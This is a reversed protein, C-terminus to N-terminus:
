RYYGYIRESLWDEWSKGDIVDSKATMDKRPKEQKWDAITEEWWANWELREDGTSRCTIADLENALYLTWDEGGKVHKYESLTFEKQDTIGDKFIATGGFDNGSEEYELDIEVAYFKSLRNFFHVPPGWASFFYIIIEKDHIEEIADGLEIWKSGYAGGLLDPDQESTGGFFRDCFEVFNCKPSWHKDFMDKIKLADEGRIICYNICYNAM